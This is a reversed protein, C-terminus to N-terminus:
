VKGGDDYIIIDFVIFITEGFNHKKQRRKKEEEIIKSEERFRKRVIRSAMYDDGHLEDERRILARM